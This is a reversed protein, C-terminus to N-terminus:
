FYDGWDFDAPSIIDSGIGFDEPGLGAFEDTPALGEWENVFDEPASELGYTPLLRDPATNTGAGTGLVGGMPDNPDAIYGGVTGAPGLGGGFLDMLAKIGQPGYKALLPLLGAAAGAAGGAPGALNKLQLKEGGGVGGGGGGGGGFGLSRIADLASPMGPMGPASLAAATQPSPLGALAARPAEPAEPMRGFGIEPMQPAGRPREIEPFASILSPTPVIKQEPAGGGAEGEPARVKPLAPMEGPEPIDIGLARKVVDPELSSNPMAGLGLQRPGPVSPLKPPTPWGAGEGQPLPELKQSLVPAQGKFEPAEPMGGRGLMMLLDLGPGATMGFPSVPRKGAAEEGQQQQARQTLLQVLRPDLGSPM